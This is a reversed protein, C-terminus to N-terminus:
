AKLLPSRVDLVDSIKVMRKKVRSIECAEGIAVDQRLNFGMYLTKKARRAAEIINLCGQATTALPKDVLVHKGHKFAALCGEEHLYDPTAVIVADIDKRAVMDDADAHIDATIGLRIKPM